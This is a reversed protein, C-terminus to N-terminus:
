AWNQFIRTFDAIATVIPSIPLAFIPLKCILCDIYFQFQSCVLLNLLFFLIRRSTLKGNILIEYANIRASIIFM